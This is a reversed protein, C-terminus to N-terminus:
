AKMISILMYFKDFIIKSFKSYNFFLKYVNVTFKYCLFM